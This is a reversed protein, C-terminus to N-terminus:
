IKRNKYIYEFTKRFYMKLKLEKKFGNKTLYGHIDSFKYNKKLMDDFHHEFYIYNINKIKENAGKIVSFEYGETDIKLIDVNNISHEKMFASLCNMKVNIKTIKNKKLNIFNLIKNKRKYYNSDQNIEVLTSSSSENLQNFNVEEKKEGLGFNFIKINKKIKLIEKKLYNFNIPSPEFCYFHEVNFNNNFLKVTEGKHAGVDFFINFNAKESKFYNIIKKQNYNDFLSLIYIILRM